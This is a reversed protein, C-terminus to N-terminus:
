AHQESRTITTQDGPAPAANAVCTVPPAPLHNALVATLTTAAEDLDAREADSLQDVIRQVSSTRATAIRQTTATGAETLAIRKVRRDADDERRSVLGSRHMADIARGAAAMSLSLRDAIENVALPHEAHELMFLTRLQSLSLDLEATIEMVEHQSGKMLALMAGSLKATLPDHNDFSPLM